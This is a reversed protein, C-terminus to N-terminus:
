SIVITMIEARFVTRYIEAQLLSVGSPHLSDSINWSTMVSLLIFNLIFLSNKLFDKNQSNINILATQRVNRSSFKGPQIIVIDSNAWCRQYAKYHSNRLGVRDVKKDPIEIWERGITQM